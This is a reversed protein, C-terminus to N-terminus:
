AVESELADLESSTLFMKFEPCVKAAMLKNGDLAVTMEKFKEALAVKKLVNDSVMAKKKEEKIYDLKM